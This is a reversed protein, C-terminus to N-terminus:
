HSIDKFGKKSLGEVTVQRWTCSAPSVAMWVFVAQPPTFGGYPSCAGAM